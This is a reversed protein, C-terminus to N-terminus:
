VAPLKVGLPELFSKLGGSEDMPKISVIKDGNIKFMNRTEPWVIKRGSAPIVGIGIASLDLDGTHTGEFHSSVIVGESVESLDSFVAKFDKFATMLLHVMGTYAKKDMLVTGSQDLSQFDDALYKSFAEIMSEPPNSWALGEYANYVDLKSGM